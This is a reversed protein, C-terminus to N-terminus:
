GRYLDVGKSNILLQMADNFGKMYCLEQARADMEDLIETYSDFDKSENAKVCDSQLKRYETNEELAKECRAYVFQMFDKDMTKNEEKEQAPTDDPARAM